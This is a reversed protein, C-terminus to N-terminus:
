WGGLCALDTEGGFLFFHELESAYGGVRCDVMFLRGRDGVPRLIRLTVSELRSKEPSIYLPTKIPSIFEVLLVM